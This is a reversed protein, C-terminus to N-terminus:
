GTEGPEPPAQYYRVDAYAFGTAARGEQEAIWRTLGVQRLRQADASWLPYNRLKALRDCPFDSCQPCVEVNRARACFRVECGPDGAGSRCGPCPTDALLNLGQWFTAFLEELGPVDFYGRDYGERRLTERLMRAQAPIRRRSACLGCYLGCYAVEELAM